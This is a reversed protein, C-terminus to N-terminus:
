VHARGIQFATEVAAHRAVRFARALGFILAAKILVLAAAVGLIRWPDALIGHMDLSLGVLLFFLGRDQLGHHGNFTDGPAPRHAPM